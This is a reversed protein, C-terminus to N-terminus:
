YLKDKNGFVIHLSFTNFEKAICSTKKLPGRFWKEGIVVCM